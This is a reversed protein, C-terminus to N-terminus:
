EPLEEFRVDPFVRLGPSIFGTVQDLVDLVCDEAMETDGRRLAALAEHLRTYLLREARNPERREDLQTETTYPKESRCEICLWRGDIDRWDHECEQTERGTM